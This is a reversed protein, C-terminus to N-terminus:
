DDLLILHIAEQSRNKKHREREDARKRAAPYLAWQVTRRKVGLMAALETLTGDGIYTDGRYAAYIKRNM